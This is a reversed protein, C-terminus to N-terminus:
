VLKELPLHRVTIPVSPQKIEVSATAKFTSAALPLSFDQSTAEGAALTIKKCVSTYGAAYVVM